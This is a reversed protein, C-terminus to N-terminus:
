CFVHNKIGECIESNNIQIASEYIELALLWEDSHKKLTETIRETNIAASERLERIDSYLSYLEKEENNHEIKHTKEEPAEFKYGYADPDSPGSFVSIISKGVAMDFIGWSPDFLIKDCFKVLCDKLTLLILKGDKYLSSLLIGEVKVGSVFELNVKEDVSIGMKRLAQLNQNELPINSNKVLGVPSGFGDSHYDKNHGKM